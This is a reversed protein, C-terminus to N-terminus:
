LSRFAERGQAKWAQKLRVPPRQLLSKPQPLASALAGLEEKEKEEEGIRMRIRIRIRMRIM